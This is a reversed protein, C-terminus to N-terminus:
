DPFQWISIMCAAAQNFDPQQRISWAAAQNFNHLQRISIICSGSRGPGRNTLLRTQYTDPRHNIGGISRCVSSIPPRNAPGHPPLKHPPFKDAPPILHWVPLIFIASLYTGQPPTTTHDLPPGASFYEFLKRLPKQSVKKQKNKTQKKRPPLCLDLVQLFKKKKM